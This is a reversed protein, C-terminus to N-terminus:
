NGFPNFKGDGMLAMLMLPNQMLNGGGMGGSLMLLPLMSSMDSNKGDMKSMLMLPLLQTMPNANTQDVTGMLSTFSRVITLGDSIGMMQVKRPRFRSVHGQTTITSLEAKTTTSGEEEEAEAKAAAEAAAANDAAIQEKTRRGRPKVPVSAVPKLGSELVFSHAKGNAVLIDGRRVQAVPTLIAFAPLALSFLDMPNQEITDDSGLTILGGDTVIGTQGTALDYKVNEVPAFMTNMAKALTAKIDSM